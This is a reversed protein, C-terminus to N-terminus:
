NLNGKQLGIPPIQSSEATQDPYQRKSINGIDIRLKTIAVNSVISGQSHTFCPQHNNGRLLSLDCKIYNKEFQM